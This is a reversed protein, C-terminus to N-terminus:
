SDSVVSASDGASASSGAADDGKSSSPTRATTSSGSSGRLRGLFGFGSDILVSVCALRVDDGFEILGSLRGVRDILVLRLSLGLLGLGLVLGLPGDDIGPETGRQERAVGRM